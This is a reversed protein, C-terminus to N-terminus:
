VALAIKLYALKLYADADRPAIRGLRQTFGEGM